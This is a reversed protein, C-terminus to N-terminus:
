RRWVQDDPREIDTLISSRRRTAGACAMFRGGCYHEDCALCDNLEGNTTKPERGLRSALCVDRCHVISCAMNDLWCERCGETFGISREVCSSAMDRGLLLYEFACRTAKDTLTDRTRRYVRRDTPTSCAGCAGQHVPARARSAAVTGEVEDCVVGVPPPRYPDEPLAPAACGIAFLAAVPWARRL